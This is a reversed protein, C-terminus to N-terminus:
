LFSSTYAKMNLNVTVCDGVRTPVASSSSISHSQDAGAVVAFSRASPVVSVPDTVRSLAYGHVWETVVKSGQRVGNSTTAANIGELVQQVPIDM